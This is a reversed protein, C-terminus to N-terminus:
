QLDEISPFEIAGDALAKVFRCGNGPESFHRYALVAFADPNMFLVMDNFVRIDTVPQQAQDKLLAARDGDRLSRIQTAYAIYEQAARGIPRRGKRRAVVFAHAMEHVVISEFLAGAPVRHFMSDPKVLAKCVNPSSVRVQKLDPDFTGFVTLGCNEVPVDVVEVHIRDRLVLGCQGLLQETLSAAKCVSAEVDGSGNAHVDVPVGECSHAPASRVEFGSVISIVLLAALLLASAVRRNAIGSEQGM